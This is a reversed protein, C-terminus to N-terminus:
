RARQSRKPPEGEDPTFGRLVKIVRGREAEPIIRGIIDLESLFEELEDPKPPPIPNSGDELAEVPVRYLKAAALLNERSPYTRGSEWQSIAQSSVGLRAAAAPQKLGANKRADRLRRKM